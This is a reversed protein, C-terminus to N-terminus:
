PIEQPVAAAETGSAAPPPTLSSLAGIDGIYVPPPAPRRKVAAPKGGSALRLLLRGEVARRWRTLVQGAYERYDQLQRGKLPGKHPGAFYAGIAEWSYGYRRVEGALIWSGVQVNVCPDYLMAESIGAAELQPFWSSNVMMLGVSHTGNKAYAIAAPNYSSEQSAIAYLLYPPLHYREGAVEWCNTRAPLQLVAPAPLAAGDVAATSVVVGATALAALFSSM